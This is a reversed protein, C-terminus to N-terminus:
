SQLKLKSITNNLCDLINTNSNDPLYQSNTCNKKKHITVVLALQADLKCNNQDPQGLTNGESIHIVSKFAFEKSSLQSNATFIWSYQVLETGNWQFQICRRETLISVGTNKQPHNAATHTISNRLSLFSIHRQVCTQLWHRAYSAVDDLCQLYMCLKLINRIRTYLHTHTHTHICKLGM